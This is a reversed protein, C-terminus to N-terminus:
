LFVVNLYTHRLIGVHPARIYCVARAGPRVTQDLGVTYSVGHRRMDGSPEGLDVSLLLRCHANHVM